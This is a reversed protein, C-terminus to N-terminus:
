LLKRLDVYTGRIIDLPEKIMILIVEIQPFGTELM